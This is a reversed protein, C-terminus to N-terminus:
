KKNRHITLLINFTVFTVSFYCSLERYILRTVKTVKTVRKKLKEKEEIM